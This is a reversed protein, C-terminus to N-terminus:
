LKIKRVRKRPKQNASHMEFTEQCHLLMQFAYHMAPSFYFNESKNLIRMKLFTCEIFHNIKKESLLIVYEM